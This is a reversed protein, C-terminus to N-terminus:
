FKFRNIEHKIQKKIFRKAYKKGKRKLLKGIKEPALWLLFVASVFLLTYIM